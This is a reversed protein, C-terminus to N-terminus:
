LRSATEKAVAELDEPKVFRFGTFMSDITGNRTVRSVLFACAIHHVVFLVLLWMILHHIWRATQAGGFVPLLVGFIRMPSGIGADMSFLAYGTLAAVLCLIYVLLYSLGALPNHGVFKPTTPQALIYFKLWPWLGRRREKTMPVLQDWRAYRNGMFMWAIRSLESLTFVIAAYFHIAKVTGMVFRQTAPAPVVIFPHGIYFGTVALVLIATAILWHTIRVPQEWVYVPVLEAKPVTSAAVTM